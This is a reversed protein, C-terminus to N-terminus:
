WSTQTRREAIQIRSKWSPTIRLGNRIRWKWVWRRLRVCRILFRGFRIRFIWSKAKSFSTKTKANHYIIKLGILRKINMKSHYLARFNYNVMNSQWDTSVSWFRHFFSTLLHDWDPKTFVSLILPPAACSSKPAIM